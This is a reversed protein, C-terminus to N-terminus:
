EPDREDVRVRHTLDITSRAQDWEVGFHRALIAGMMQSYSFYGQGELEKQLLPMFETPVSVMRCRPSKNGM